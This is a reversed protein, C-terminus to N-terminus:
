STVNLIDDHSNEYFSVHMKSKSSASPNQLEWHHQSQLDIVSAWYLSKWDVYNEHDVDAKVKEGPNGCVVPVFHHVLFLYINDM